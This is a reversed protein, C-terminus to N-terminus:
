LGDKQKKLIRNITAPSKNVEKAIDRQSLGEKNLAIVQEELAEALDRMAWKGGVLKAEFPEADEGLFGRAKEFHVEFRAGEDPNYDQPRRLNVVTDLVDERRSTGRQGGGKGAHHVFLVSKGKRRMSLAWSQVQGWSEAENERGTRCLTSLNDVIILEADAIADDFIRHSAPDCLDPLGDRHMDSSLIRLFSPDAAEHDAHAAIQALREQLAAAPMEGDIFIVKRPKLARWRLLSGGSAVAYAIGLAVHTKGVGRPAFLMALGAVPLLPSLIMERPPFKKSLFQDLAIPRLRSGGLENLKKEVDELLVTDSEIM